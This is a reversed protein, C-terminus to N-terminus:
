LVRRLFRDVRDLVRDQYFADDGHEAGKIIYLGSEVGMQQLKEYLMESQAMPVLVDGDGHLILFPPAAKTVYSVASAREAAAPTYGVGLFEEMTWSPVIDNGEGMELETLDMLGYFDVVAKVSSDYETFDGQEFEKNGATLGILGAITGEASEGMACIRDTDICFEEAHAKLFRVAAKADILPDPFVAENSTRYEVSAVIYGKRAFYTLEPLWVSRDVVRYAGGCFWVILPCKEHGERQKPAIIDMNLSRDHERVM